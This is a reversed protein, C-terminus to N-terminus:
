LQSILYHTLPSALYIFVSIIFVYLIWTNFEFHPCCSDFNCEKTRSVCGTYLLLFAECCVLRHPFCNLLYGSETPFIGCCGAVPACFSWINEEQEQRESSQSLLHPVLSVPGLLTFAWRSWLVLLASKGRAWYRDGVVRQEGTGKMTMVICGMHPLKRQWFLLKKQILCFVVDQWTFSPWPRSTLVSLIHFWAGGIPCHQIEAELSNSATPRCICDSWWCLLWARQVNWCCTCSIFVSM